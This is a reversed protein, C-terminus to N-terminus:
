MYRETEYICTIYHNTVINELKGCKVQHEDSIDVVDDSHSIRKKKLKCGNSSCINFAKVGTATSIKENKAPM